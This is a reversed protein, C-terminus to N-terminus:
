QFTIFVPQPELALVQAPNAMPIDEDYFNKWGAFMGQAQPQGADFLTGYTGYKAGLSGQGDMHLVVLIEDPTTIEDRGKIMSLNFQHLVLMKQPLDNDRVLAALHDVVSNVEAGTVSGIQRLHKQDPKLRWEPDLAVGVHPQVLFEDLAKVQTLFDTRGSQLDLIVKFDEEAARDVWERIIDHSIGYSYDGNETASASAVTAIIEFTPVVTLTGDDYPAAIKRLRDVTADLNQEGLVGLASTGPTGYMAIFRKGTLTYGGGPAENGAALVRLMTTFREPAIDDGGQRIIITGDNVASTLRTSASGAAFPDAGPLALVAHGALM